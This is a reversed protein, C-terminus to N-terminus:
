GHGIGPDELCDPRDTIRYIIDVVDPHQILLTVREPNQTLQQGVQRCNRYIQRDAESGKFGSGIKEISM